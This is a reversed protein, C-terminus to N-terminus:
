AISVKNSTQSDSGPLAQLASSPTASTPAGVSGTVFASDSFLDEVGTVSKAFAGISSLNDGLLGTQGLVNEDLQPASAGPRSFSGRPDFDELDEEVNTALVSGGRITKTLASVTNAPSRAGQASTGAQSLTAPGGGDRSNDPREHGFVADEYSSTGSPAKSFHLEARRNDPSYDSKGRGGATRYTVHGDDDVVQDKDAVDHRDGSYKSHSNDGVKQGGSYDEYDSKPEDEKLHHVDKGFRDEERSREIDRERGVGYKDDDRSGFRINSGVREDDQDGSYGGGTSSYSSPKHISGTSSVGRYKDRNTAAKHRVERIKEKDNVLAVLTQAKKRVNIGQDKGNPEIYQFDVLTQVQYAHESFDDIIREAGNAVLFELVTLAKYVHRWNKGTDNLRKWLIGMIMQYENFNRTAQAIDAMLTGHPGWPENSTAELVKQEIEPVKLVKKNVERKLERVTQDLVKKLDM